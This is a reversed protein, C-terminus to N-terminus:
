NGVKIFLGIMSISSWKRTPNSAETILCIWIMFIHVPDLSKTKSNITRNLDSYIHVCVNYDYIFSNSREQASLKRSWLFYSSYAISRYCTTTVFNSCTFYPFSYLFSASAWTLRFSKKATVHTHTLPM